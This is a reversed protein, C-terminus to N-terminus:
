SDNAEERAKKRWRSVTSEYVEGGFLDVLASLSLRFCYDEFKVGHKLELLQLKAPKRYM